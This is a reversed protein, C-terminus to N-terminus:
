SSTCFVAEVAGMKPELLDMSYILTSNSCRTSPLRIFVNDFLSTSFGLIPRRLGLVKYDPRNQDM